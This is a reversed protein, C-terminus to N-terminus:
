VTREGLDVFTGRLTGAGIYGIEALLPAPPVPGPLVLVVHDFAVDTPEGSPSHKHSCFPNHYWCVHACVCVCVCVCLCLSHGRVTM